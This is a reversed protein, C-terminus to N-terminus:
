YLKELPTRHAVHLPYRSAAIFIYATTPHILVGRQLYDTWSLYPGGTTVQQWDGTTDFRDLRAGLEINAEVANSKSDLIKEHEEDPTKGFELELFGNAM